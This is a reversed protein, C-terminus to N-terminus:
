KQTLPGESVVIYGGKTTSFHLYGKSDVWGGSIDMKSYKNNVVDYSYFYLNSTDMEGVKAAIDVKMGYDQQVCLIVKTNNKYFTDFVKQAKGTKEKNTHVELWLNETPISGAGVNTPTVTLRGEISKNNVTDFNIKAPSVSSALKVADAAVYTYGQLTVAGDKGTVKEILESQSLVKEKAEQTVEASTDEDKANGGTVNPSEDFDIITGDEARGAVTVKISDTKGNETKIRIIAEGPEIATVYGDQDVEAVNYNSSSWTVDAMTDADDPRIIYQLRIEQGKYMKRDGSPRIRVSTPKVEDSAAFGTIAFCTFVMVVALLVTLIKRGKKM